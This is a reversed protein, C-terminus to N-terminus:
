PMGNAQPAGPGRPVTTAKDPPMNRQYGLSGLIACINHRQMATHIRIAARHHWLWHLRNSEDPGYTGMHAMLRTAVYHWRSCHDMTTPPAHPQAQHGFAVGAMTCTGEELHSSHLTPLWRISMGLLLQEGTTKRHIWLDLDQAAAQEAHANPRRTDGVSRAYDLHGRGWAPTARPPQKGPESATNTGTEVRM